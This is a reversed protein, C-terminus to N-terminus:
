GALIELRDGVQTGSREIAGTPLELVCKTRWSIPGLRWPKLNPLAKVVQGHKDVYLVDIPMRMFFCHISNCSELVLGDSGSWGRRGMLGLGRRIPGRAVEACAAVVHDRATNVIRVNPM